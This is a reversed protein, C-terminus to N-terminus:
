NLDFTKLWEKLETITDSNVKIVQHYLKELSARHGAKYYRELYQCASQLKRTGLYAVGGKIKHAIKEIQDWDKKDYATKLMQIDQQMKESIFDKLLSLLLSFDNLQKLAYKPDFIPFTDLQFLQDETDPLDVGLGNIVPNNHVTPQYANTSDSQIFQKVMDKLMSSSAPKTFVDNMGCAICEPKATERAHGTLGLIPVPSKNEQIEWNRILQCLEAGSIGPLGIDTVILDFAMTKALKLGTEGDPASTFLYGVNSVISELVKLAIPSDEILLLHPIKISHSAPSPETSDSKHNFVAKKISLNLNDKEILNDKPMKCPVDFNFTSGVGEESTLTIHGGLLNVYLQAIHLGLGYGRYIGKYSPSVRFFQDFVKTQMEKPIGIGTDSVGFQLHLNDNQVELCKVQITINGTKTFKIANGLLNLLVRQIKKRDSIINHPVTKDIEVNLSLNKATTTPTELKVLDEICQYLDFVESNINEENLNEDRIGELIDNLMSLLEEGSDHIIHAEEKQEPNELELELIEAMGIVGTLPTRIDHSMNAIFETKAHNAAEAADKAHNLDDEMKKRDTIDVSIGLMGTIEGKSDRLPVKNSLYIKKIGDTTYLPEELSLSVGTEMVTKDARKYHEASKEDYLDAYTKGIIDHRSTLRLLKAMSNSCGLYICEKNMWYVSVPIEAIINEMYLYINNAQELADEDLNALAATFIQNLNKVPKHESGTTKQKQISGIIIYSVDNDSIKSCLSHWLITKEEIHSILHNFFSQKTSSSFDPCLISVTQGIVDNKKLNFIKEASSNLDLVLSGLSLIFAPEKISHIFSSHINITKRM